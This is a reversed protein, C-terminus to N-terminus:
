SKTSVHGDVDFAIGIAACAQAVLQPNRLLYNDSSGPLRHGALLEAQEWSVGLAVSYAADRIQSFKASPGLGALTRYKGWADVTSFQTYSRSRTNFITDRNRPLAEIAARTQPWLVGIRPVDTKQRRTVVTGAALDVEDWTLAGAERGYMALNLAALMMAAFTPDRAEVVKEYVAWFEGPRIPQPDLRAKGHAELLQCFDLVRRCCEVDIQKRIAYSLIRRVMAFRHGLSKAALSKAEMKAQYTRIRDVGLERVTAVEVVRCFERWYLKARSAENSSLGKKSAYTDGLTMLAVSPSPRPLDAGRAVWEVGTKLAVLKPDALLDRRV